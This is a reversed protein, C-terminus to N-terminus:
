PRAEYDDPILPNDVDTKTVGPPVRNRTLHGRLAERVKPSTEDELASALLARMGPADLGWSAITYAASLRVRESKDFRLAREVFDKMAAPGMYQAAHLLGTRVHSSPDSAMRQQMATRASEPAQFRLASAAVTRIEEADDELGALILPLADPSRVNGLGGLWNHREELRAPGGPAPPVLAEAAKQLYTVLYTKAVNLAAEDGAHEGHAAKNYIAAGLVMALQSATVPDRPDYARRALGALTADEPREMTAVSGLILGQEVPGLVENAVLKRVELQAAPTAASALAEIMSRKVPEPTNQALFVATLQPAATPDERVTRALADRATARRQWDPADHVAKLAQGVPLVPDQPARLDLTRPDFVALAETAPAQIASTDGTRAMRVTTQYSQGTTKDRSTHTSGGAASSVAHIRGTRVALTVTGAADHQAVSDEGSPGDIDHTYSWTKKLGDTTRTYRAHTPGNISWEEASWRQADPKHGTIQIAQVVSALLGRESAGAGPAFRLARIAGDPEVEAVFPAAFLAHSDQRPFDTIHAFGSDMTLKADAMRMVLRRKDTGDAARDTEPQAHLTGSLAMRVTRAAGDPGQGAMELAYDLTYAGSLVPMGRAPVAHRAAARSEATEPADATSEQAIAPTTKDSVREIRDPALLVALGVGTGVLLTATVYRTKM